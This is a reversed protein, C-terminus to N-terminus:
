QGLFVKNMIEEVPAVDAVADGLSVLGERLEDFGKQNREEVFNPFLTDLLDVGSQSQAFALANAVGHHISHLAVELICTPIDQLREADTDGHANVADATATVAVKFAELQQMLEEFVFM